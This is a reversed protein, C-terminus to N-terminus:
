VKFLVSFKKDSVLKKKEKIEEGNKNNKKHPSYENVNKSVKLQNIINEPSCQCNSPMGQCDKKEILLHM